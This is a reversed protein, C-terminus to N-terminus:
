TQADASTIEENMSDLRDVCQYVLAASLVGGLHQIASVKCTMEDLSGAELTVVLKGAASSGHVRAGPMDAIAQSVSPLRTPAAHVVLSTIHLEAASPDADIPATDPAPHLLAM